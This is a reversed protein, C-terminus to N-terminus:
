RNVKIVFIISEYHTRLTAQVYPLSVITCYFKFISLGVSNIFLPVVSM